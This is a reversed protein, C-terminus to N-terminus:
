PKYCFVDLNMEAFDDGRLQTLYLPHPNPECAHIHVRFGATNVIELLRHLTQPKDIFAHYEFFICRVKSLVAACDELVETEAGEIDLKLFDVAERELLPRLRRTRVRVQGKGDNVTASALRGAKNCHRQFTTEGNSSWVAEQFLDVDQWELRKANEQLIRFVVPDPEFAIIRATPWLHKFYLTGMGVNAGCDIILPNKTRARFKYTEKQWIKRYLFDLSWRDKFLFSQGAIKAEVAELEPRDVAAELINRVEREKPRLALEMRQRLEAKLRTKGVKAMFFRAKGKAVALPTWGLLRRLEAPSVRNEAGVQEKGWAQLASAEPPACFIFPFKERNRRESTMWYIPELDNPFKQFHYCDLQDELKCEAYPGYVSLKAGCYAAYAWHSGFGNTTVYEFGGMLMQLRTLANRDNWDMGRIIKYGRRKFASVWYGRAYCSPHLCIVVAEFRDRIKDIAEAYGEFDWDHASASISHVPMVLLSGPVRDVGSENLYCIPLGIAASNFYGQERLFGEEDKRAVFLPRAKDAPDWTYDGTVM